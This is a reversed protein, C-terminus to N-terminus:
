SAVTESAGFAMRHERIFADLAQPAQGGIREVVDTKGRLAIAINDILSRTLDTACQLSIPEVSPEM